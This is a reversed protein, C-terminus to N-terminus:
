VYGSIDPLLNRLRDRGRSLRAKVTGSPRRIVTAIEAVTMEFYYHMVIAERYIYDLKGIAEALSQRREAQLVNSLGDESGAIVRANGAPAVAGAAIRAGATGADGEIADDVRDATPIPLRKRQKMRCENVAIRYIWTYLSSDGRFRDINRLAAVFTEQVVDEAGHHDRLLLWAGRLLRDGYRAVLERVAEEDGAKLGGILRREAATERNMLNGAEANSKAAM